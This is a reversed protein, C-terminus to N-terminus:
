ELKNFPQMCAIDALTVNNGLLYSGGNKEISAELTALFKPFTELIFTTFHLDKEKYAPIFPVMFKNIGGVMDEMTEMLNDIEWTLEPDEHCPYLNEGNKGKFSKGIYRMIANSQVLQTGDDTTLCPVQNWTYNGTAKRKMWEGMDMTDDEYAVQCYDLTMRIMMGRGHAGFYEFKM